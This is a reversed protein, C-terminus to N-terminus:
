YASMDTFCCPLMSILFFTLFYPLIASFLISTYSIFLRLTM